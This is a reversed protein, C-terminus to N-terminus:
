VRQEGRSVDIRSRQEQLLSLQEPIQHALLSLKVSDQQALIALDALRKCVAVDDDEFRRQGREDRAPQILGEAEWRKLTDVSRGIKKAVDSIRM